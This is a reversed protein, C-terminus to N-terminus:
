MTMRKCDIMLLREKYSSQPMSAAQRARLPARFCGHLKLKESMARCFRVTTITRGKEVSKEVKGQYDAQAAITALHTVCFVQRYRSLQKLYNGVAVGVQGGIGADIEDFVLTEVVDHSAVVAKLALAVRSLEGGSAIKTLPQEPEGPNPAIFFQADDIGRPGLKYAGKEDLLHTLRLNITADPMGLTRLITQMSLAM